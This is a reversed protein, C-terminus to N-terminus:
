FLNVYKFNFRYEIALDVKIIIANKLIAALMLGM